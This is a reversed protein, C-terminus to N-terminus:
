GKLLEEVEKRSPVSPQAGHRTVSLAAAANAFQVAERMEMGEAIAAGV